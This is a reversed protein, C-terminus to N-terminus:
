TAAKRTAANPNVHVARNNKDVFGVQDVWHCHRVQHQISRHQCVRPEPVTSEVCLVQSAVPVQFCGGQDADVDAVIPTTEITRPAAM